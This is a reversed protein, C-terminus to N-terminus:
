SKRYRAVAIPAFVVVLAAAWLLSRSVFYGAPHGLLGEASPLIGDPGPIARTDSRSARPNRPRVGGM